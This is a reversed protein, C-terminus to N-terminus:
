TRVPPESCAVGSFKSTVGDVPVRASKLRGFTVVAVSCACKKRGYHYIQMYIDIASNFGSPLWANIIYNDDCSFVTSRTITSVCM